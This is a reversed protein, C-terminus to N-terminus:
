NLWKKIVGEIDEDVEEDLGKRGYEQDFLDGTDKDESPSDNKQRIFENFGEYYDELDNRIVKKKKTM